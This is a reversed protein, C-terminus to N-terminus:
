LNVQTVRLVASRSDPTFATAAPQYISIQTNDTAWMLQFTSNANMSRQFSWSPYITAEISGSGYLSMETASDPVDVGDQRCWVWVRGSQNKPSDIHLRFEFKYLGQESVRIANTNALNVHPCKLGDKNYTIAYPTNAVSATQSTNSYFTGMHLQPFISPRVLIEGETVDVKMVAAISVAVNPSTPRINTLEGPTTSAWLLDGINWTEGVTTGTTDIHRVKGFTTARGNKGNAIPQTIIGIVYLPPYLGNTADFLAIQPTWETNGGHPPSVGAFM